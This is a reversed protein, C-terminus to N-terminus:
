PLKMEYLGHDCKKTGMYMSTKEAVECLDISVTRIAEDIETSIRCKGDLM